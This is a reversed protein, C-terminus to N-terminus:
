IVYFRRRKGTLTEGIMEGRIKDYSDEPYWRYEGDIVCEICWKLFAQKQEYCGICDVLIEMSRM